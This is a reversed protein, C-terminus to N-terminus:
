DAVQRNRVEDYERQIRIFYRGKALKLPKHEPHEIVATGKVNVIFDVSGEPVQYSRGKDDVSDRNYFYSKDLVLLQADGKIKHMHGTKEGERIIMDKKEKLQGLVFEPVDTAVLVLVEGQRLGKSM